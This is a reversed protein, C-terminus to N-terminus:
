EGPGSAAKAALYTRWAGAFDRGLLKALATVRLADVGSRLRAAAAANDGALRQGVRTQLRAVPDEDVSVVRGDLSALYRRAAALLAERRAEVEWLLSLDAKCRRCAREQVNDAKCVPCRM